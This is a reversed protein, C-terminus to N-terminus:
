FRKNYHVHEVKYGVMNVVKVNVRRELFTGILPHKVTFLNVMKNKRYKVNRGNM